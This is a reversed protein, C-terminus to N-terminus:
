HKDNGHSTPVRADSLRSDNGECATGETTGYTIASNALNDLIYQTFSTVTGSSASSSQATADQQLNTLTGSSSTQSQALSDVLQSDTLTGTTSSTSQATGDHQSNTLTGVASSISQAIYKLNNFLDSFGQGLGYGM